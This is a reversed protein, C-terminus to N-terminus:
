GETSSARLQETLKGFERQLELNEFPRLPPIQREALGELLQRSAQVLGVLEGSVRVTEYTNWATAIDRALERRASQVQESQEKLYNRYLGAAEITLQQSQLNQALLARRQPNHSERMLAQTDTALSQTRQIIADIEPLYQESIASEVHIHMRELARLLVVYLGYYRRASDLDEGSEIVLRELQTTIARVNDFLIGLDVMTDGVVTALLFELQEDSLELGMARLDRAFARQVTGIEQELRDIDREREAILRDYDAVSRQLTSERPASVRKQRYEAIDARARTIEARLSQIQERQRLAPSRSLIAVADDLLANIAERNSDRDSGFWARKPLESQREELILAEDLRPLSADWLQEFSADEPGLLRRADEAAQGALERSRQWLTDAGDTFQNWLEASSEGVGQAHASTLGLLLPLLILRSAVPFM